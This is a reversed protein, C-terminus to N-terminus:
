LKIKFFLAYLVPVLLLVAVTSFLLGGMITAAMSNFMADSLLPIMGLITTLSAMMVPRFRAAASQRLAAAPETGAAMRADIDDMLVICNKIMMGVLGLAGVIACFTFAFGSILMAAVIGVALLPLFAGIPGKTLTAGSLLLVVAVRRWWRRPTNPDDILRQLMFIAGVMCATLVMDVRCAEAARFVEFSTALVIAAALAFEESRHRRAWFYTAMVLAIAALASPMRAVFENVVGGNFVVAFISILWALMPPKYPMEGASVPLVWDGSQLMSMAVIAERPEGKSYFLCDGLWPLWLTTVAILLLVALAASSPGKSPKLM